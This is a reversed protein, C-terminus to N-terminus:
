RLGPTCRNLRMIREDRSGHTAPPLALHRHEAELGSLRKEGERQKCGAEKRSM